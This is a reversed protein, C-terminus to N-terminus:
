FGSVVVTCTLPLSTGPETSITQDGCGQPNSSGGPLVFSVTVDLRYWDTSCAGTGASTTCNATIVPDALAAGPMVLLLVALGLLVTAWRMAGGSTGRRSPVVREPPRRGRRRAGCGTVSAATARDRCVARVRRALPPRAHPAVQRPPRPTALAPRSRTTTSRPPAVAAPVVIHTETRSPTSRPTPAATAAESVHTPTAVVAPHVDVKPPASRVDTTPKSIKV